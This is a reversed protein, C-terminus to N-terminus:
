RSQAKSSGRKSESKGQLGM